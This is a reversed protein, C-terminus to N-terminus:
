GNTSYFEKARTQARVAINQHLKHAHVSLTEPAPINAPQTITNHMEAGRPVHATQDGVVLGPRPTPLGHEDDGGETSEVGESERVLLIILKQRGPKGLSLFQLLSETHEARTVDRHANHVHAAAANEKWCVNFV